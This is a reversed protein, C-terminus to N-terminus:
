FDFLVGAGTSISKQWLGNYRTTLFDAQVRFAIHSRWQIDAGGGAMIGFGNFSSVGGGQNFREHAGGAVVHAWPQIKGHRVGIHVGGGYFVQQERRTPILRGFTATVDGEIGFMSDGLWRNVTTHVGYLNSNSGGIDFRQYAFNAGVQWPYDNSTHISGAAAAPAPEAVVDVTTGNQAAAAGAFCLMAASLLIFKRM